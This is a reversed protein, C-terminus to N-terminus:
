QKICSLKVVSNLPCKYIIVCHVECNLIM